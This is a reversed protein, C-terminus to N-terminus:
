ALRASSTAAAPPCLTSMIPGGPAPLLISAFRMGPMRGSILRALHELGRLDVGDRAQRPGSDGITACRGKREGCWVTEAAAMDPPACSWGPSILRACLPTSNRSSSGSNRRSTRSARRWGSSSPITVTDRAAPVATYGLRKMSTQAMFGQRQPQYPWGVCRQVQVSRSTLCYRARTEPGKRSRMSMTTSTGASSYEAREPRVPGLGRAIYAPADVGRPLYLVAAEGAGAGAAVGM